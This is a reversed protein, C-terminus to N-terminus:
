RPRTSSIPFHSDYFVHGIAWDLNGGCGLQALAFNEGCSTVSAAAGSGADLGLRLEDHNAHAYTDHPDAFPALGGAVIGACDVCLLYDVVNCAVYLEAM